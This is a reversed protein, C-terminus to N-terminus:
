SVIEEREHVKRRVPATGYLRAGIEEAAGLTWAGFQEIDGRRVRASPAAVAIAGIAVGAGNRIAASVSEVGEEFGQSGVSYGRRRADEVHAAFTARDAITHTTYSELPAALAAERLRPAAFALFAIGSATAHLPLLEGIPVSVRNARASEVVHVSMLGRRCYESLHVTEGTQAALREAVPAAARLFPFREERLAALRAIGAGLRYTRTAEDQEVLGHEILSVLLRRTTAKDFGTARAAEALAVDPGGTGLMDLLLAAKGVTSM